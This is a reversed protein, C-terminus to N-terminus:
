CKPHLISKNAKIHYFLKVRLLSSFFSFFALPNGDPIFHLAAGPFSTNQYSFGEFNKNRPM